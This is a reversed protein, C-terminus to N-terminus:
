DADSLGYAGLGTRQTNASPSEVVHGTRATTATLAFTRSASLHTDDYRFANHSLLVSRLIEKRGRRSSNRDPDPYCPLAVCALSLSHFWMSYWRSCHLGPHSYGCWFEEVACAFLRIADITARNDM